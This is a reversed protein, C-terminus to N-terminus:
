VLELHVLRPIGNEVDVKTVRFKSDRPLLIEKEQKKGGEVKGMEASVNLTSTGKPISIRVATANTFERAVGEETTTSTYAPDSFEAGVKVGGRAGFVPHGEVWKSGRYVVLDEPAPSFSSDILDVAQKASKSLTGSRLGKNISRYGFHQYWRVMEQQKPSLEKKQPSGGGTGFQGNAARPHDSENWTDRAKTRHIHIHVQKM